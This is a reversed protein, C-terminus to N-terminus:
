NQGYNLLLVQKLFCSASRSTLCLACVHLEVCYGILCQKYISMTPRIKGRIQSKPLLQVTIKVRHLKFTPKITKNGNYKSISICTALSIQSQTGLDKNVYSRCQNLSSLVYGMEVLNSQFQKVLPQPSMKPWTFFTYNFKQLTRVNELGPKEKEQM